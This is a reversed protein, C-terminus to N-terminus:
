NYYIPAIYKASTGPYKAVVTYYYGWLTLIEVHLVANHYFFREM